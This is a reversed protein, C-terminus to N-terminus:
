ELNQVLERMREIACKIEVVIASIGAHNSKSGITNTERFMEQIIFDLKRGTPEGRQDAARGKAAKGGTSNENGHLVDRFLDLHSGLRTVEESVDAKDAYVQVERLLDVSDVDLDHEALLRKVKTELRNRYAEATEPALTRVSAVHTAILDCESALTQAMHEGERQRLQVLNELAATMVSHVQDWLSDEDMEATSVNTLVGPLATLTAVDIQVQSDGDAEALQVAARCRRLYEALAAEDVQGAPTGTQSELQLSVYISGRHLYNRTLSEIKSEFAALCEPTRVSCKFGRNNVTRVDAVLNGLEMKASATGHGTMSRINSAISEPM